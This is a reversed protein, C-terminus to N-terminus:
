RQREFLARFPDIALHELGGGFAITHANRLRRESTPAHASCAPGNRESHSPCFVCDAVVAVVVARM